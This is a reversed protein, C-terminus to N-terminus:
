APFSPSSELPFQLYTDALIWFAITVLNFYLFLSDGTQKFAEWFTENSVSIRESKQYILDISTNRRLFDFIKIPLYM